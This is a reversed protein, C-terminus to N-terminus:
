KGMNYSLTGLGLHSEKHKPDMRISQQFAAKALAIEGLDNYANAQLFIFGNQDPDFEIDVFEWFPIEKEIDGVDGRLESEIDRMHSMVFTKKLEETLDESIWLVHFKNSRKKPFSCTLNGEYILNNIDGYYKAMGKAM